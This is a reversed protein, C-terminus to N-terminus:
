ADFQKGIEDLVTSRVIGEVIKRLIEGADNAYLDRAQEETLNTREQILRLLAGYDGKASLAADALNGITLPKTSYTIDM